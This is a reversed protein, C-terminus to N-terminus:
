SHIMKVKTQEELHVEAISLKISDGHLNSSELSCLAQGVFDDKSGYSNHICFVLSQQHLESPALKTFTFVQDFKPHLTGPIVDSHFIQKKKPLLYLTIFCNSAESKCKTPINFARYLYVILSCQHREYYLSFQLMSEDNVDLTKMRVLKRTGPEPDSSQIDPSDCSEQSSNGSSCDYEDESIQDRAAATALISTRRSVTCSLHRPPSGYSLTTSNRRSTRGPRRPQRSIIKGLTEAEIRREIQPHVSFQRKLQPYSFALRRTSQQPIFLGDDEQLPYYRYLPHEEKSQPCCTEFCCPCCLGHCLDSINM